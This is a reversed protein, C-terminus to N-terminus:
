KASIKFYIANLLFIITAGGCYGAFGIYKGEDVLAMINGLIFFLVSLGYFFNARANNYTPKTLTQRDQKRETGTKLPAASVPIKGGCNQCDMDDYIVGPELEVDYHQGCKPCTLKVNM